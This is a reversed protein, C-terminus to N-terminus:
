RRPSARPRLSRVRSADCSARGNREWDGSASTFYARASGELFEGFEGGSGNRARRRPKLFWVFM